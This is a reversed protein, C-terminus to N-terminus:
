AAFRGAQSNRSRRFHRIDLIVGNVEPWLVRGCVTHQSHHELKVTLDHLTGIRVDTEQM